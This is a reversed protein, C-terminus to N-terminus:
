KYVEDLDLMIPREWHECFDSINFDIDDVLHTELIYEESWEDKHCVHSELAEWLKANTALSVDLGDLIYTSGGKFKWHQPCEGEGNWCHAGYNELFQTALIIKM